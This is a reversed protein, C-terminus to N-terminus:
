LFLIKRVVSAIDLARMALIELLIIIKTGVFIFKKIKLSLYLSEFVPNIM